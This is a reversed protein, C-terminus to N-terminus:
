NIVKRAFVVCVRSKRFFKLFGMEQLTADSEIKAICKQKDFFVKKLERGHFHFRILIQRTSSIIGSIRNNTVSSGV